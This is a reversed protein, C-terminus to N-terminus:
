RGGIVNIPVRTRFHWSRVGSQRLVGEVERDTMPQDYRPSLMDFTDLVSEWYRQDRSYEPTDYVAVPLVFRAVKGVIPMRFLRDALPFVIPMSLDIARLLVPQPLRRTLPRLLYKGNLKTWPRRAYITFSFRGEANVCRLVSAVAGRPDPTHQAVGVCYAFDFAGARFPPQLLDGQVVDVNDFRALTKKAAAVASSFDLAVLNPGRGAAVEAFRGAGCGADLLWRGKLENETWGVEADFRRRSYSRGTASDVQVERFLNWQRGFSATYDERPQEDAAATPVFRPIGRLIPYSRGTAESVLRGSEINDGSGQTDELRLPSGTGPEALVEM